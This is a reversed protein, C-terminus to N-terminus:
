SNRRRPAGGPRGVWWGVVDPLPTDTGRGQGIGAPWLQSERGAGEADGLSAAARSRGILLVVGDRGPGRESPGSETPM